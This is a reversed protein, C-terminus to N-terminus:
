TRSSAALANTIEAERILGLTTIHDGARGSGISQFWPKERMAIAKAM